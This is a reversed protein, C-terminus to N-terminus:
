RWSFISCLDYDDSDDRDDLVDRLACALKKLNKPDDLLQPLLDQNSPKQKNKDKLISIIEQFYQHTLPSLQNSPQCTTPPAATPRCSEFVMGSGWQCRAISKGNNLPLIVFVCFTALLKYFYKM